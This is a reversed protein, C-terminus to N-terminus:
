RNKRAHAQKTQTEMRKRRQVFFCVYRLWTCGFGATETEVNALGGGALLPQARSAPTPISAPVTAIPRLFWSSLSIIHYLLYMFCFYTLTLDNYM